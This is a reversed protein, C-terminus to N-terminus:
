SRRGASASRAHRCVSAIMGSRAPAAPTDRVPTRPARGTSAARSAARRVLHRGLRKLRDRRLACRPSSCARERATADRAARPRPRGGHILAYVSATWCTSTPLGSRASEASVRAAVLLRRCSPREPARGPRPRASFSGRKGASMVRAALSPVLRDITTCGRCCCLPCALSRAVTARVPPPSDRAGLSVLHTTRMQCDILPFGWRALQRALVVIAIKSGRDPAHVDIRRLVHARAGRRLPRRGARRGDVSRDFARRGRRAAAPLRADDGACGPARKMAARRRARRWSTPSRATSRSRSTARKRLRRALSRSVHVRTPRCCWARIPVGGSCRIARASGPFIGRAYADILRAVDLGGGAALLGDTRGAGHDVPPFPDTAALLPIM